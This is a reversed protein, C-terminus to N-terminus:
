NEAFLKKIEFTLGPFAPHRFTGDHMAPLSHYGDSQLEYCGISHESPNVLWYHPVGAKCYSNMKRVTDTTASSPSIIEVVLEPLVELPTTKVPRTSPLYLLDPQVVTYEDLLVDLPSYFVEGKPDIKAFYDELLRLLRRSVRQHVHSPGPERILLGNILQLKYGPENPIKAYDEYTLKPQVAYEAQQEQVHGAPNREPTRNQLIRIVDTEFYRYQGPEVEIHPIRDERTYHRITGLSLDLIEALEHATLLKKEAM